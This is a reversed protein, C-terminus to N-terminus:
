HIAFIAWPIFFLLQPKSYPLIFLIFLPFYVNKINIYVYVTFM